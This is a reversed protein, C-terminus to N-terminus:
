NKLFKKILRVIWKEDEKAMSTMHEDLAEVGGCFGDWFNSKYLFEKLGKQSTCQDIGKYWESLNVMQTGYADFEKRYRCRDFSKVGQNIIAKINEYCFSYDDKIMKKLFDKMADLTSKETITAALEKVDVATETKKAM